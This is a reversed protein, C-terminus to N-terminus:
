VEVDLACAKLHSIDVQMYKKVTASTTHGLIDAITSLPINEELLRTALTHRLSHMGHKHQSLDVKALRAYRIIIGSLSSTDSFAMIPTRCTLFVNQIETKPRGFRLYDIIAWGVDAPLPLDVREQTKSQVFSIRSNDWDLDSLRLTRVDSVRLGLKTVLMLIAYDRKGMPSGRDIASLMKEVDEYNWVSPLPAKRLCRKAPMTLSMDENLYGKRYLFNLFLILTRRHHEVADDSMTIITGLFGVVTKQEIESIPIENSFLYNFFKRLDSSRRYITAESVGNIRSEEGFQADLREYEPTLQLRGKLRRARLFAGHVYYDNLLAIARMAYQTSCPLEHVLRGDCEVPYNKQLFAAGVTISYTNIGEKEAYLSLERITSRFNRLSGETYGAAIMAQDFAILLEGFSKSDKM